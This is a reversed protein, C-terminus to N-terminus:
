KRPKKSAKKKAPKQAKEIFEQVVNRMAEAKARDIVTLPVQETLSYITHLCVLPTMGKPKTM